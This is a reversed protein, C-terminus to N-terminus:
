TELRADMTIEAKLVRSVPCGAKADAAAKAFAEQDAGPIKARVDLHVATISFGEDSKELRTDDDYMYCHAAVIVTKDAHDRILADAWALVEDSPGYELCVIM